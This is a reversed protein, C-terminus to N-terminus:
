SGSARRMVGSSHEQWARWLDVRTVHYGCTRAALILDEKSQCAQLTQRLNPQAEADEILRELESGSM